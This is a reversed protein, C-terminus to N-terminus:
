EAKAGLVGGVDWGVEVKGSVACVCGVALAMAGRVKVNLDHTIFGM